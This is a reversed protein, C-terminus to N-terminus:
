SKRTGSLVKMAADIARRADLDTPSLHGLQIRIEDLARRLLALRREGDIADLGLGKLREVEATQKEIRAEMLRIHDQAPSIKKTM